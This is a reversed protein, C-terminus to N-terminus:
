VFEPLSLPHASKLEVQEIEFSIPRKLKEELAMADLACLVEENIQEYISQLNLVIFSNNNGIVEVSIGNITLHHSLNM